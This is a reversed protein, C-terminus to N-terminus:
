MEGNNIRRLIEIRYVLVQHLERLRGMELHMEASSSAAIEMKNLQEVIANQISVVEGVSATQRRFDM